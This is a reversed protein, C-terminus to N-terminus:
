PEIELFINPRLNNKGPVSRSWRNHFAGESFCIGRIRWNMQIQLNHKLMVFANHQLM